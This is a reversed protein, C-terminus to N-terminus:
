LEGTALEAEILEAVLLRACDKVQAATPSGKLTTNCAKLLQRRDEKKQQRVALDSAQAAVRADKAAKKASDVGFVGGSYTATEFDVGDYCVCPDAGGCRKAGAGPQQALAAPIESEAIWNICSAIAPAPISLLLLIWFRMM